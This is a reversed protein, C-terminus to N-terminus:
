PQESTGGAVGVATVLMHELSAADTPYEATAVVSGGVMVVVRSAVAAAEHLDHTAFLVARGAEAQRRVEQRFASAAVPDLTRTPEDFLLVPPECLLARALSLRARMGSSYRDFRRDAADTLDIDDLLEAARARAAARPMGQLAAFFQLNDRGSLRWYWSREEGLVLGLCRRAAGPDSVVDHGAVEARGRDPLVTTGLIRLLTSKGAGNPGLLAVIGGWPVELDIGRLAVHGGFRKELGAVRVGHHPQAAGGRLMEASPGSSSRGV